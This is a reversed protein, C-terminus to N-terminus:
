KKIHQLFDIEIIRLESNVAESGPTKFLDLEGATPAAVEVISPIPISTGISVTVRTAATNWRGFPIHAARTSTSCRAVM